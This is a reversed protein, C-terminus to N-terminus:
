ANAPKNSNENKAGESSLEQSSLEEIKIEEGKLSVEVEEQSSQERATLEIYDEALAAGDLMDPCYMKIGKSAARYFLMLDTYNKYNSKNILGIRAADYITFKAVGICIQKDKELKYFTVECGEVKGDKEEFKVSYDYKGSKKIKSLFIKTEYGIKSDLIFVTTMLQLPSLGMERGALIKVIAQAESQIDKLIKSEYFV